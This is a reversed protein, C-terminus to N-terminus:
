RKDEGDEIFEYEPERIAYAIEQFSCLIAAFMCLMGVALDSPGWSIWGYRIISFASIIANMLFVILNLNRITM